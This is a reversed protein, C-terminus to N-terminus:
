KKNFFYERVLEKGGQRYVKGGAIWVASDCLAEACRMDHTVTIMTNSSKEHLENLIRVMEKLGAYDQGVTPEDLLLVDPNKAAVAAISVRRKQGESLSHPHRDALAAIGFLEMIEAAYHASVAGYEVEKRVTPMFLQYAPNQYVVGVRDFWKKSGRHNQKFSRDISQVIKGGDPKCLRALLRLLTTKGCGNDGLLLLRGGKKVTFSVDELIKRERVRYAVNHLVFACDQGYFPPCADTIREAQARLYAAKDDVKSIVGGCINWVSSVYPLVMDLRHEVVLVAYGTKALMCLANMLQESGVKDLNALPEDLVLIKQKTALASATILRQKQGGSLARTKWLPQLKMIDCASEVCKEIDAQPMAFNECGFAIEDEVTQQIIQADANQLVVGVKRCVDSLKKGEISSGDIFVEGAPEGSILNPIIGCILSLVTSKGEGSLGSLLAVEGYDVSFNVGKLVQAVSGDYRFSVEKFEIAKM